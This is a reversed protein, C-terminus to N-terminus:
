LPWMARLTKIPMNGISPNIIISNDLIQNSPCGISYDPSHGHSESDQLTNMGDRLHNANWMERQTNTHTQTNHHHLPILIDMQQFGMNM